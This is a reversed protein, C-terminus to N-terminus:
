PATTGNLKSNCASAKGGAICGMKMEIMTLSILTKKPIRTEPHPDSQELRITALYIRGFNPVDIVHGCSRGPYAGESHNVLSCKIPSLRESKAPVQNYCERVEPHLDKDAHIREYQALVRQRFSDSDSYPADGGPKEGFLNTDLEVKVPHGAIRLNEFRTGLFTVTPVYGVLPHDTSIQAVIRDATVIDLVNLGEIVSTALTSWGHGPKTELNGAVQTYASRYSIVSELQYREARQSRYGGKESLSVAAQSHIEQALPFDLCGAIATAEAHYIHIRKTDETM